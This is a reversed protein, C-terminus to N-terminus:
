AEPLERVLNEPVHPVALPSAQPIRRDREQMELLLRQGHPEARNLLHYEDPLPRYGFHSKLELDDGLGAACVHWTM